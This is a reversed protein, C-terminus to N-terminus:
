SSSIRGTYEAKSLISAHESAQGVTTNYNTIHMFRSRFYVDILSHSIYRLSSLFLVDRLAAYIYRQVYESIM